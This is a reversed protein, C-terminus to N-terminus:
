KKIKDETLTLPIVISTNHASLLKSTTGILEWNVILPKLGEDVYRKTAPESNFAPIPLNMIKNGNLNLEKNIPPNIDGYYSSYSNGDFQNFLLNSM